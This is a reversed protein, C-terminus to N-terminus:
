GALILVKIDGALRWAVERFGKKVRGAIPEMRHRTGAARPYLLSGAAEVRRTKEVPTSVSWGPIALGIIARL